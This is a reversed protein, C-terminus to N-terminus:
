AGVCTQKIVTVGCPDELDQALADERTKAVVEFEEVIYRKIKWRKAGLLDILKSESTGHSDCGGCDGTCKNKDVIIEWM